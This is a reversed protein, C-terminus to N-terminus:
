TLVCSVSAHHQDRILVNSSAVESIFCVVLRAWFVEGNLTQKARETCPFCANTVWAVWMPEQGNYTRASVIFGECGSVATDFEGTHTATPRWFQLYFTKSYLSVLCCHIIMMMMMLVYRLV